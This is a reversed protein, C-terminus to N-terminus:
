DFMPVKGDKPQKLAAYERSKYFDALHENLYYLLYVLLEDYLNLPLAGGGTM